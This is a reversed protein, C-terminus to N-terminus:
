KAAKAGASLWDNLNIAVDLQRAKKILEDRKDCPPMARAKSRTEDAIKQWKETISIDHTQRM